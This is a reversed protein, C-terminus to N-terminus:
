ATLRNRMAGDTGVIPLSSIFEPAWPSDLAAKIVLALTAPTIREKRSLGSGNDLVLGPAAIRKADLWERVVRDAGEATTPANAALKGLHLYTVRTVPNDSRKNIDRVIEALTRGRHEALRLPAAPLVDAPGRERVRGSLTGGLERWIARFMRDALDARDIVNVETTAKCGAPFEGSVTIEIRADADSDGIGGAVRRAVPTTWGQEWDACKREVLTLRSAVVVNDLPTRLKAEVKGSALPGSSMELQVLNMNLLLADPIVNYQFEPTEDFPPVGLDPRAPAFYGRDVVVDGAIEEVGRNRLAILMERLAAADFDVSGQGILWLDGAIRGEVPAASALLEVRARFTPGLRELAVISTLTKLTSAPQMSTDARHQLVISRDAVRVAMVGVAEQPLGAEALMAAVREPLQAYAM